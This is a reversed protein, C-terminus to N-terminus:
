LPVSKINSFSTILPFCFFSSFYLLLYKTSSGPPLFFLASDRSILINMHLLAPLNTSPYFCLLLTPLNPYSFLLPFPETKYKKKWKETYLKGDWNPVNEKVEQLPQFNILLIRLTSWFKYRLHASIRLM